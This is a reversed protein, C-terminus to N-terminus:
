GTFTHPAQAARPASEACRTCRLCTISGTATNYAATNPLGGTTYNLPTGCRPCYALDEGQAELIARVQARRTLHTMTDLRETTWM